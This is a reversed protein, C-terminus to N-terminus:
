RSALARRSTPATRCFSLLLSPLFFPHSPCPVPLFRASGGGRVLKRLAGEFDDKNSYEVIGVTDSVMNAFGVEGAARMFDKLDQWSTRLPLNSVRVRLETRRPPGRSNPNVGRGRSFECQLRKGM